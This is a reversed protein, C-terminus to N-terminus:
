EGTGTAPIQEAKPLMEYWNEGGDNSRLVNGGQGVMWCVQPTACTVDRFYGHKDAPFRGVGDEEGEARLRKWTQGGDTSVRRLGKEGVAILHNNEGFAGSFM